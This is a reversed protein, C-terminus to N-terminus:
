PALRMLLLIATVFVGILFFLHFTFEIIWYVFRDSLSRRM